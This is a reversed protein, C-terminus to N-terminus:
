LSTEPHCSHIASFPFVVSSRATGIHEKERESGNLCPLLHVEVNHPFPKYIAVNYAVLSSHSPLRGLLNKQNEESSNVCDHKNAHLVVWM